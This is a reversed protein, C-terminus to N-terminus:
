RPHMSSRLRRGHRADAAPGHGHRRQGVIRRRRGATKAAPSRHLDLRRRRRRPRAARAVAARGPLVAMPGSSAKNSSSRESTTPWNRRAAPKTSKSSPRPRITIAFPWLRAPTADATDALWDSKTTHWNPPSASRSSKSAAAAKDDQQTQQQQSRVLNHGGAELQISVHTLQGARQRADSRHPRWFHRGPVIFCVFGSLLLLQLRSMIEMGTLARSGFLRM